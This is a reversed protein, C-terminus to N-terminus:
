PLLEQENIPSPPILSELQANIDAESAGHAILYERWYPEPWQQSYIADVEGATLGDAFKFIPNFPIITSGWTLNTSSFTVPPAPTEQFPTFRWAITGSDPHIFPTYPMLTSGKRDESEM